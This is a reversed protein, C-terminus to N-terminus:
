LLNAKTLRTQIKPALHDFSFHLPERSKGETSGDIILFATFLDWDKIIDILKQARTQNFTGKSKWQRYLAFSEDHFQVMNLLDQDDCFRALFAKALSAHSEPHEIPVGPNSKAKFSDHTHILLLLKEKQGHLLKPEMQNLNQLLEDIHAKIAGEPHGSRPESWQINALYSPDHLIQTLANNYINSTM